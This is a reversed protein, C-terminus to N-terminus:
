GVAKKGGPSVDSYSELGDRGAMDCGSKPIMSGAGQGKHGEGTFLEMDSPVTLRLIGESLVLRSSDWTRSKRYHRRDEV